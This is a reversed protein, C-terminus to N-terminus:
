FHPFPVDWQEFKRVVLTIAFECRCMNLNHPGLQVHFLNRIPRSIHIKKNYFVRNTSWNFLEDYEYEQWIKFGTM